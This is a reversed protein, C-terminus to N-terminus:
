GGQCAAPLIISISVSSSFCTNLLQREMIAMTDLNINIGHHIIFIINYTNLIYITIGFIFTLCSTLHLRFKFM